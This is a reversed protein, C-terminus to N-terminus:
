EAVYPEVLADAGSLGISKAYDDLYFSSANEKTVISLGNDMYSSQWLNQGEDARANMPQLIENHSALYCDIMAMYGQLYQDPAIAFFFKDAQLLDLVEESTDCCAVLLAQEGNGIEIGAQAAGVASSAEPTFVAKLDPDKQYTTMTATYTADADQGSNEEYIKMDPYNAEIYAIFSDDRLEHNSQGPNRMVLVSGKGELADGIQKAAANGEKTNDSTVYCVRESEPSDAAFTVVEVGQEVARSIPDVFSEATIPHVVIGTPNLALIQDFVEVQASVDYEPTGMYYASVGLAAAADKMGQMVPYWYEVGSIPVCMYYQEGTGDGFGSGSPETLPAILDDSGNLGISQAYDNLYFKNATEKTVVSLGNDMFPSQWLNEGAEARGNMPRLMENHAAFFVDLMAMYGQLYQDPAIALFFKDDQLLDLVEESTDCCAVLLAQEGSGIELGAQAAGVASSAEPTFVAKLDPDKQYTTMTATYTADADQGSNEEYVKIDPYNEALYAIFANDRTEHNTQGANRMVLVSGKGGLAEGIEKAAAAGEKNNDSTVYSTRGSEESDSAFTVIEVGQDMARQIPDVFSEATIPSLVIGTPNLALIQDFVEVEASVDYEPTGMYYAQVGLADACDKMGQFVPYWYEVGSVFACMYYTESPDGKLASGAATAVAEAAAATEVADEAEAEEAAEEVAAAADLTGDKAAESVAAEAEKEEKEAEKAAESVAEETAKEEAEAEKAAEDVAESVAKDVEEAEKKVEEEAEKVAASVASAAKEEETKPKSCGALLGVSMAAIAVIAIVKKKM